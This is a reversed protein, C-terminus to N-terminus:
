PSFLSDYYLLFFALLSFQSSFLVQPAIFGDKDIKSIWGLEKSESKSKTETKSSMRITLKKPLAEQKKKSAVPFKTLSISERNKNKQKLGVNIIIAM